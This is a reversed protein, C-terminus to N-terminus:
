RAATREAALPQGDPRESAHPTQLPGYKLDALVEIAERLEEPTELYAHWFLQELRLTAAPVAAKFAGLHRLPIPSMLRYPSM